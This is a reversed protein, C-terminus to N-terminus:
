WTPSTLSHITSLSSRSTRTLLLQASSSVVLVDSVIPTSFIHMNNLIYTYSSSLPPPPDPRSFLSRKLSHTTHFFLRSRSLSLSLLLLSMCLCLSLPLCLPFSVRQYRDQHDHHIFRPFTRNNNPSFPFTSNPHLTLSSFSSFFIQSCVGWPKICQGSHSSIPLPLNIVRLANLIWHETTLTWHHRWSIIVPSSCRVLPAGWGLSM